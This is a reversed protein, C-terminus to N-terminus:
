KSWRHDPDDLMLRGNTTFPIVVTLSHVARSHTARQKEEPCPYYKKTDSFFDKTEKSLRNWLMYEGISDFFMM